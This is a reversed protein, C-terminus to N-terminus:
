VNKRPTKRAERERIREFEDPDFVSWYRRKLEPINTRTGTPVDIPPVYPIDVTKKMVVKLLGDSARCESAFSDPLVNTERIFEVINQPLSYQERAQAYDSFVCKYNNSRALMWFFKFNYNIFGHNFMGQAPLFHLMLGDLAALDHIVKFANLQNAVHETTGFNTVLDYKGLADRPADDFNLDLPISDPSGDIDICAYKLGLWQWFVRATPAQSDLHELHGHVVHTPKPPVLAIPSQVGFAKGLVQLREGALLFSSALQQAGIEIISGGRRIHGQAQLKILVEIADSGIGM